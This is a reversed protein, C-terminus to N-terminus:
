WYRRSNHEIWGCHYRETLDHHTTHIYGGNPDYEYVGYLMVADQPQLTKIKESIDINHKVMVDLQPREGDLQIIFTQYTFGQTDHQDALLQTVRGCVKVQRSSIKQAFLSSVNANHCSVPEIQYRHQAAYQINHENVLSPITLPEATQISTATFSDMSMGLSKKAM